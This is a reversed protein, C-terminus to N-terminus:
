PSRGEKSQIELLFKKAPPTNGEKAVLKKGQGNNRSPPLSGTNKKYKEDELGSEELHAKPFLEVNKKKQLNEESIEM